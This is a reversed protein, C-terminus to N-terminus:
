GRDRHISPTLTVPPGGLALHIALNVPLVRSKLVTGPRPGAESAATVLIQSFAARRLVRTCSIGPRTNSELSIDFMVFLLVPDFCANSLRLVRHFLVPPM